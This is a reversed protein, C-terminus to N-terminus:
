GVGDGMGPPKAAVNGVPRRIAQDALDIVENSEITSSLSSPQGSEQIPLL